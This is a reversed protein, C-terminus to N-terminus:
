ADGDQTNMFVRRVLDEYLIFFGM